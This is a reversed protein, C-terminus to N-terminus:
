NSPRRRSRVAWVVLYLLLANFVGAGAGQWADARHSGPYPLMAWWPLALPIQFANNMGDFSSTALSRLTSWLALAVLLTWTGAAALARRDYIRRM